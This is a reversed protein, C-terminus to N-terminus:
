LYAKYAGSHWTSWQRWDRGGDSIRLAAEANCRADFACRDSVEAHWRSNIQFLGRDTSRPKRNHGVALPDGSSEAMAIAAALKPKKFGVDRALARLGRLTLQEDGPTPTQEAEPEDPKCDFCVGGDAASASAPIALALVALAIAAVPLKLPRLPM